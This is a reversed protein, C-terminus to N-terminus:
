NVLYKDVVLFFFYFVMFWGGALAWTKKYLKNKEHGRYYYSGLLITATLLVFAMDLIDYIFRVM